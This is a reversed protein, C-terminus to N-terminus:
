FCMVGLVRFPFILHSTQYYPSKFSLFCHAFLFCCAKRGNKEPGPWIWATHASPSLSSSDSVSLVSLCPLRMKVWVGGRRWRQGEGGRFGAAHSPFVFLTWGTAAAGQPSPPAKQFTIGAWQLPRLHQWASNSGFQEALLCGWGEVRCNRWWGVLLLCSVYQIHLSEKFIHM